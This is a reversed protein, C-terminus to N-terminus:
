WSWRRSPAIREAMAQASHWTTGVVAAWALPFTSRAKPVRAVVPPATGRHFPEEQEADYQWPPKTPPFAAL